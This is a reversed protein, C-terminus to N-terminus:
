RHAPYPRVTRWGPKREKEPESTDPFLSPPAAPLGDFIFGGFRMKETSRVSATCEVEARCATVMCGLTEDYRMEERSISRLACPMDGIATCVAEFLAATEEAERVYLWIGLEATCISVGREEKLIGICIVPKESKRRARGTFTERIEADPLAAKLATVLGKMIENGTM